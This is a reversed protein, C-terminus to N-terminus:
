LKTGGTHFPVLSRLTVEALAQAAQQALKDADAQSVLSNATASKTAVFNKYRAVGTQTSSFIPLSEDLDEADQSAAGDFRVSPDGTEITSRQGTETDKEPDMYVKFERLACQGSGEIRFNFATDTTEKNGTPEVNFVPGEVGASTLPDSPKNFVDETRAQRSQKKFSFMTTALTLEKSTFLNGQAAKFVPTSCRKWRGRKAGAWSVAMNVTGSLESLEYEAYRFTKKIVSGGAYGRTEIAWPIDCGNDRRDSSFAEYIRNGGDLDHSGCFIRETGDIKVTTWQIPRVGTWVSAWAPPGNQTLLDTAAVDLVWTQSNFQDSYPVSTLVFNNTGVSAIGSLDSSLRSSYRVLENDLKRLKTSQTNFEATTLNTTGELSYWYLDGAMSIVSLDAVCGIRPFIKRQFDQVQNWLTRDRIDSRFTSTTSDTFALLLPLNTGPTEVLATINSPLLWFNVGGLTNFVQESFTLPDALDGAFLKERRAVWLRSGAWCMITGQPIAYTGTSTRLISGDYYTAPSVGDQLILISQPTILRLSGDPNRVVAKSTNCTYVRKATSDMQAGGVQRFGVYPYDSAFVIGSVVAILQPFGRSPNYTALAQFRGNPLKIRTNFGPRTQLVGGRNILNEAHIYGGPGITVNESFTNLGLGFRADGDQIQPTM